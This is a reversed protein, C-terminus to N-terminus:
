VRVDRLRPRLCQASPRERRPRGQCQREAFLISSFFMFIKQVDGATYDVRAAPACPLFVQPNKLANPGSFIKNEIPLIKCAFNKPLPYRFKGMLVSNSARTEKAMEKNLSLSIADMGTCILARRLRATHDDTPFTTPFGRRKSRGGISTCSARSRFDRLSGSGCCRM